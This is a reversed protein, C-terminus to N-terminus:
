LIQESRYKVIHFFWGSYLVVAGNVVLLIPLNVYFGFECVCAM